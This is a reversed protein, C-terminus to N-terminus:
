YEPPDGPAGGTLADRGRETLAGSAILLDRTGLERLLRDAFRVPLLSASRIGAADDVGAQVLALVLREFVNVPDQPPVPVSVRFAYAPVVVLLCRREHRARPHPMRGGLDLVEANYWAADMPRTTASSASRGCALLSP